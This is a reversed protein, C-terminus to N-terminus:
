RHWSTRTKKGPKKESDAVPHAANRAAVDYHYHCLNAAGACDGSTVIAVTVAQRECGKVECTGLDEM